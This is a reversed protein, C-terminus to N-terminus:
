VTQTCAARLATVVRGQDEDTMQHFLPLAIATDQIEEGVHLWGCGSGSCTCTDHEPGCSWTGKPWAPERHANMVGRRTAIGGDLMQQMIARPELPPAIRITYTQWNTRAWEPEFPRIVGPLDALLEQYRAALERRRSVLAPLRKLQERGVAAQIDTLRYNFGPISYNETVVTTSAHRVTDPVSMGHQRLLRFRADFEANRTTLMGGDGTSVLKRPHFSFCAIDGRPAGITEWRGKHRVKSGIACAADEIVPLNRREAIPLLADLDCPMGVQHVVLLARTASTIAADVLLPDINFTDRDVDIFV